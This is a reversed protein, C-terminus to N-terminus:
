NKNQCLSINNPCYSILDAYHERILAMLVSVSEHANILCQIASDIAECVDDDRVHETSDFDSRMSRLRVYILDLFKLAWNVRDYDDRDEDVQGQKALAKDGLEGAYKALIDIQDCFVKSAFVVDEIENLISITRSVDYEFSQGFSYLDDYTIYTMKRAGGAVLPFPPRVHSIQTKTM